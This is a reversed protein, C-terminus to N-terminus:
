ARAESSTWRPARWRRRATIPSRIGVWGSEALRAGVADRDDSPKEFSILDIDCDAALRELYAVVQSQGLPEAAGDYSVYIVRPRKATEMSPQM